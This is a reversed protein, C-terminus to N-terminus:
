KAIVPLARFHSVEYRVLLDESTTISLVLLKFVDLLKTAGWPDIPGKSNVKRIYLHTLQRLTHIQNLFASTHQIICLQINTKIGCSLKM